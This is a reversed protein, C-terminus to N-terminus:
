PSNAEPRNINKPPDQTTLVNTLKNYISSISGQSAMGVGNRNKRITAKAIMLELPVVSDREFTEFQTEHANKSPPRHTKSNANILM